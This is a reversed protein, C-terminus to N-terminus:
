FVENIKKIILSKPKLGMLRGVEAGGKEFVLTPLTTINHKKVMDDDVSTNVERFEIKGKYEARLEDVIPAIAKCNLCGNGWFKTIILNDM